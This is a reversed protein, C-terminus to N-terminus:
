LHYYLLEKPHVSFELLDKFAYYNKLMLKSVVVLWGFQESLNTDSDIKYTHKWLWERVM